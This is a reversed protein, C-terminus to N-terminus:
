AGILVGRLGLKWKPNLAKSKPNLTEPKMNFHRKWEIKWREGVYGWTVGAITRVESYCLSCEVGYVRSGFGRPDVSGVM